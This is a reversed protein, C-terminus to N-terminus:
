HGVARMAVTVIEILVILTAGVFLQRRDFMFMVPRRAGTQKAVATGTGDHTRYDGSPLVNCV